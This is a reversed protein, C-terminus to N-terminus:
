KGIATTLILVALVLAIFVNMLSDLGNAATTVDSSNHETVNMFVFTLNNYEEISDSSMTTSEHASVTSNM